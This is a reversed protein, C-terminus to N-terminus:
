LMILRVKKLQNRTRARIKWLYKVISLLKSYQILYKITFYRYKKEREIYKEFHIATLSSNSSTNATMAARDDTNVVWFGFLNYLRRM